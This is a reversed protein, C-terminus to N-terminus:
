IELIRMRLDADSVRWRREVEVTRERWEECTACDVFVRELLEEGRAIARAIDLAAARRMKEMAQFEELAGTHEVVILEPDNGEIDLDIHKTM